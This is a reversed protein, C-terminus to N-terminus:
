LTNRVHIAPYWLKKKSFFLFSFYYFSDYLRSCFLRVPLVGFLFSLIVVLLVSHFFQTNWDRLPIAFFYINRFVLSFSDGFSASIHFKDGVVMRLLVQEEWCFQGWVGGNRCTEGCTWFWGSSELKFVKVFDLSM